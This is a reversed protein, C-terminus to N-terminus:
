GGITVDLFVYERGPTNEILQKMADTAKKKYIILNSNDIYRFEGLVWELFAEHDGIYNTDNVFALTTAKHHYFSGKKENQVKKL